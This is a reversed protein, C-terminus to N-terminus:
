TFGKAECTTRSSGRGKKNRKRATRKSKHYANKSRDINPRQNFLKYFYEDMNKLIAKADCRSICASWSQYHNWVDVYQIKGEDLLKKLKKLKRREQKIKKPDPKIIVKGTKTLIFRKRMFLFGNQLRITGSKDTVIIGLKAMEETVYKQAELLKNKDNSIMLIDDNYRIYFKIRFKPNEKIYHDIINPIALQFLQAMESGLGTGREGFPDNLIEAEDRDDTYSDIIDCIYDSQHKNRVKQRVVAKSTSHPTNPFFGKFDLHKVYGVNTNNQRYYKQLFCIVRQIAFDTGKNKLCAGNDYIFDHTLDDKVGNDAIAKQYVRDRIRTALIKRVKPEYVYFRTYPSLCYRGTIIEQKLKYNKHLSNIWYDAVSDKYRTGKACKRFAKRLESLKLYEEDLLETNFYTM